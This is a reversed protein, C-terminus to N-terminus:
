SKRNFNEQQYTVPKITLPNLYRKKASTHGIKWNLKVYALILLFSHDRTLKKQKKQPRIIITYSDKKGAAKKEQQKQIKM